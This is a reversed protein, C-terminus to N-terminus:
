TTRPTLRVYASDVCQQGLVDVTVALEDDALLARLEPEIDDLIVQIALRPPGCDDDLFALVTVGGLVIAPAEDPGDATLLSAGLNWHEVDHTM